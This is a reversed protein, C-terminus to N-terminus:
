VIGCKLTFLKEISVVDHKQKSMRGNDVEGFDKPPFRPTVYDLFLNQPTNPKRKKWSPYLHAHNGNVATLPYQTAIQIVM